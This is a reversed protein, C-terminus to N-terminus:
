DILRDEAASWFPYNQRFFAKFNSITLIKMFFYISIKTIYIGVFVHKAVVKCASDRNYMLTENFYTKKYQLALVLLLFSEATDKRKTDNLYIVFQIRSNIMATVQLRAVVVTGHPTPMVPVDTIIFVDPLTPISFFHEFKFVCIHQKVFM